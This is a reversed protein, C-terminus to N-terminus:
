KCRWRKKSNDSATLWQCNEPCYNGDNDIRDITAKPFWDLLAWKKFVAFSHWEKCVSIGRGGYRHFKKNSPCYCRNMMQEWTNKIPTGREKEHGSWRNLQNKKATCLKCRFEPVRKVRYRDRTVLIGCGICNDQLFLRKRNGIFVEVVQMAM